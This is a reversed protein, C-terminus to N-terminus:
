NNASSWQLNVMEVFRFQVIISFCFIPLILNFKLIFTKGRDCSFQGRDCSPRFQFAFILHSNDTQLRSQIFIPPVFQSPLLNWKPFLRHWLHSETGLFQHRFHISLYFPPPPSGPFDTEQPHGRAKVAMNAMIMMVLANFAFEIFTM